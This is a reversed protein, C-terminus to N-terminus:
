WGAGAPQKVAVNLRNFVNTTAISLLLAALGHEDYHRSAEHWVADSGPDSQDALRTVAEALALAAREKRRPL